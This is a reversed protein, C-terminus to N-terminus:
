RSEGAPRSAPGTGPQADPKRRRRKLQDKLIKLSREFVPWSAEYKKDESLRKLLAVSSETGNRAIMGAITANRGTAGPKIQKALADMAAANGIMLLANTLITGRSGTSNRPMKALDALDDVLGTERQLGAIAIALMQGTKIKNRLYPISFAGEGTASRASRMIGAALSRHMRGEKAARVYRLEQTAWQLQRGKPTDSLRETVSPIIMQLETRVTANDVEASVKKLLVLSNRDGVIALFRAAAIQLKAEKRNVLVREAADRVDNPSMYFAVERGVKPKKVFLSYLCDRAGKGGKHALVLLALKARTAVEDTEAVKRLFAVDVLTDKGALRAAYPLLNKVKADPGWQKSAQSAVNAFTKAFDEGNAQRMDAIALGTACICFVAIRKYLM